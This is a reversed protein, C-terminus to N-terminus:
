TSAAQGSVASGSAAPPDILYHMGGGGGGMSACSPLSSVAGVLVAAVTMKLRSAIGIM